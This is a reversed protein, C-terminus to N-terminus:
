GSIDATQERRLRFTQLREICRRALDSESLYQQAFSLLECLSSYDPPEDFDDPYVEFWLMIVSRLSRCCGAIVREQLVLDAEQM